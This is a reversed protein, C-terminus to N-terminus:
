GGLVGISLNQYMGWLATIFIAVTGILQTYFRCRTLRKRLDGGQPSEARMRRAAVLQLMAVFTMPMGLLFVAQAFEVGYYFGLVALASLLFSVLAMLWPGALDWIHLMRNVNVRTIDELDTEAQGGARRARVVMDFPVGLVWHSASSWMVALAIWFWLNSFSRMDILEFISLHWDL